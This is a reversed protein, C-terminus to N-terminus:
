GPTAANAHRREGLDRAAVLDPSLQPAPRHADDIPGVVAVEATVDGELDDAGGDLVGVPVGLAVLLAEEVLRPGGGAERVGRDHDYVVDAPIRGRPGEEHGELEQLTAGQLVEQALLARQGPRLRQHQDPPHRLAEVVGVLM